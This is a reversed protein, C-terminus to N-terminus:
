LANRGRHVERTPMLTRSICAATEYLLCLTRQVIPTCGQTVSSLQQADFGIRSRISGIIASFRDPYVNDRAYFVVRRSDSCFRKPMITFQIAGLAGCSELVIQLNVPFNGSLRYAGIIELACEYARSESIDLAQELRESSGAIRVRDTDM